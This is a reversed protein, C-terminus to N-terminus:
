SGPKRNEQEKTSDGWVDQGEPIKWLDEPATVRARRSGESRGRHVTKNDYHGTRRKPSRAINIVQRLILAM